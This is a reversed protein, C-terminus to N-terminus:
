TWKIRSWLQVSIEVWWRQPGHQSFSTELLSTAYSIPRQPLLVPRQTTPIMWLAESKFTARLTQLIRTYTYINYTITTPHVQCLVEMLASDVRAPLVRGDLIRHLYCGDSVSMNTRVLPVGPLGVWRECRRTSQRCSISGLILKRGCSCTSRHVGGECFCLLSRKWRQVSSKSSSAQLGFGAENGV